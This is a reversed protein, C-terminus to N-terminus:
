QDKFNTRRQPFPRSELRNDSELDQRLKREAALQKLLTPSLRRLPTEVLRPPSIPDIKCLRSFPNETNMKIRIKLTTSVKFEFADM